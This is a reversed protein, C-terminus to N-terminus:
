DEEAPTSDNDESTSTALVDIVFVVTDNGFAEEPPAVILYQSGATADALGEQWSPILGTFPMTEPINGEQWTTEVTEETSWEVSSYQVTIMGGTQVQPGDGRILPVVELMSPPEEDPIDVTPAGDDNRDVTPLEPADDPEAVEEGSARTHLVDLVLVVPHEEDDTPEETRVMRTGERAGNLSSYLPGAEDKSLLLTRPERGYSDDVTEGTVTDVAMYAVLVPDGDSLERGEGEILTRTSTRTVQAGDPVIVQPRRGFDGTVEVEPPSDEPESDTCGALLVALTAFVAILARALRAAKPPPETGASTM